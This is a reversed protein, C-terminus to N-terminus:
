ADPRVVRKVRLHVGDVATVQIRAGEELLREGEAPEASWLEGAVQVQGHPDLAVRVTGQQGLLAEMGTLIPAKQARLAFGVGLAFTAATLVGVFVVLPLSVHQVEPAEVSNFLILAGSIFSVVGTVTLAGHTPMKLELFFLVFAAAIFILGFWNVPLLGLGYVALALCVVGVFGAVWGGPSALEILIAQVGIALLLFVINPNTLMMLVQEVATNPFDERPANQTHLILSQGDVVVSKGETQRLLDDLDDAVIDVLGVKLAEDASVARAEEITAEALAIAEESRGSALSRVSAKMIEKTKRQLTAEVDEGQMGVPSAAGIATEPAMAALHGALTIITGASGAMAGRPAVYVLVPVRSARMVQVMRSTIDVSGGPTNLQLVILGANITEAHRVAREIYDAMPTSVAGDAKLLLIAGSDGQAGAPGAIALSWTFILIALTIFRYKQM